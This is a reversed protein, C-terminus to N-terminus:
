GITYYLIYKVFGYNRPPVHKSLEIAASRSYQVRIIVVDNTVTTHPRVCASRVGISIENNKNNTVITSDITMMCFTM